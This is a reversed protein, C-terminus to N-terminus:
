KHQNTPISQYHRLRVLTKPCTKGKWKRPQLIKLFPILSNMCRWLIDTACVWFTRNVRTLPVLLRTWSSSVVPAEDALDWDEADYPGTLSIFNCLLRVLEPNEIVRQCAGVRRTSHWVHRARAGAAASQYSSANPCHTFPPGRHFVFMQPVM